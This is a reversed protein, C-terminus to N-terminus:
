RPTDIHGAEHEAQWREIWVRLEEEEAPDFQPSAAIGLRLQEWAEDFRGQRAAVFGLNFRIRRESVSHGVTLIAALGAELWPRAEDFREQKLLSVALSNACPGFHDPRDHDTALDAAQRLHAESNELDDALGYAYGLNQLVIIRKDVPAGGEEALVRAERLVRIADHPRGVEGLVGGLNFMAALTTTPDGIRRNLELNREFYALAEVKRGALVLAIALGVSMRAEGVTEGAAEAARLVTQFAPLWELSPRRRVLWNGVADLLQWGRDPHSRAAALAAAFVNDGDAEYWAMAEAIGAFRCVEVSQDVWPDRAPTILHTSAEHAQAIYWDLLRLWGRGGDGDGGSDEARHLERAYDRILDHFRFRGPRHEEILHVRCLELLDAHTEATAAGALAAAAPATVDEGPVLGLLRFLRRVRDPLRGYSFSLTTRVSSDPDGPLALVSLRDGRGLEEAYGAIDVGGPEGLLAAATIRLALPLGGCLKVVAATAVPERAVHELGIISALLTTADQDSLMDLPVPRAGDIAILGALRDRSTVLTMCRPGSPLLARIQGIDAANDLVLLVARGSTRSRYLGVAATEDIPIDSDPVGLGRLLLSVAAGTPLPQASGHGRLNVFLLGDPFRDRARQGWRVALATKGVGAAGDITSLVAVRGADEPGSAIEDLLALQTDRGIFGGVARPLLNVPGGAAAAAAHDLAPDADLIAQHLRRLEPGPEVGMEETLLDYALRYARLAEVQRGCRYLALLHLARLRERYPHAAILADLEGILGAHEGADLDLQLAEEHIELRFEDLRAAELDVTPLERLGQFSAGRWHGLASRLLVRAEDPHRGSRAAAAQSVLQEVTDVDYEGPELHIAYSQARTTLRRGLVGRLRSLQVHLTPRLEAGSRDPWLEDILADASLAAGRRAALLALLRREGARSIVAEGGGRRVLLPGLVCLEIKEQRSGDSGPM